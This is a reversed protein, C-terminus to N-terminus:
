TKVEKLYDKLNLVNMIRQQASVSQVEEIFWDSRGEHYEKIYQELNM